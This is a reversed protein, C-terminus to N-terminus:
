GTGCVVMRFLQSIGLSFSTWAFSHLVAYGIRQRESYKPNVNHILSPTTLEIITIIFMTAFYIQIGARDPFDSILSCQGGGVKRSIEASEWFLNRWVMLVLIYLIPFFIMRWLNNHRWFEIPSKSVM